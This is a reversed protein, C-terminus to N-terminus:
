LFAAILYGVNRYIMLYIFILNLLNHSRCLWSQFSATEGQRQGYVFIYFSYMKFYLIKRHVDLSSKRARPTLCAPNRPLTSERKRQVNEEKFLIITYDIKEHESVRIFCEYRNRITCVSFQISFYILSEYLHCGTPGRYLQNM